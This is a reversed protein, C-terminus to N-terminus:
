FNFLLPLIIKVPFSISLQLIFKSPNILSKEILLKLFKVPQIVKISKFTLFIEILEFPPDQSSLIFKILRM